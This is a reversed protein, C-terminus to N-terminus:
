QRGTVPPLYAGRQRKSLRVVITDGVLDGLRQRNATLAICLIGPTWCVGCLCDVVLVIERALSGAFGSPRLSTRVTRLRLLWKGPTIGWWGQMIVLSLAMLVCSGALLAIVGRGKTILPHEFTPDNMRANMAVVYTVWDFDRTMWAGLFWGSGAILGLDIIRAVGRNFPNALCVTQLGARYTAKTGFPMLSAEIFALIGGLIVGLGAHWGYRPLGDFMAYFDPPDSSKIKRFGGSKIAYFHTQGISTAVVLYSKDGNQRSGINYRETGCPMQLTSTEVWRSDIFQYLRALPAFPINQDPVTVIAPQRDVLVPLDLYTMKREASAMNQVGHSEDDFRARVLSWGQLDIEPNAPSLASCIEVPTLEAHSASDQPLRSKRDALEFGRKCWLGEDTTVFLYREQGDYVQRSDGFAKFNGTAPRNSDRLSLEPIEVKLTPLWRGQSFVDVNIQRDLTSEFCAPENGHLFRKFRAYRETGSEAPATLSSPTLKSDILEFMGRSTEVFLRGEFEYISPYTSSFVDELGAIPISEGTDPDRKLFEYRFEMTPSWMLPSKVIVFGDGWFNAEMVNDVMCEVRVLGPISPLIQPLIESIGVGLWLYWAIMSCPIGVTLTLPSTVLLAFLIALWRYIARKRSSPSDAPLDTM